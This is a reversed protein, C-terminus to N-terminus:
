MGSVNQEQADSPNLTNDASGRERAPEAPQRARRSRQQRCRQGCREVARQPRDGAPEDRCQQGADQNNGNCAALRWRAWTAVVCFCAKEHTQTGMSVSKCCDAYCCRPARKWDSQKLNAALIGIKPPAPCGAIDTSQQTSYASRVRPATGRRRWWWGCSVSRQQQHPRFLISSHLLSAIASRISGGHRSM